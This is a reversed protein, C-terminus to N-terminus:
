CRSRAAATSPEIADGGPVIGRTFEVIERTSRYSRTLRIIETQDPGYLAALPDIDSYASAHSYIAQNLDGLATMRSRPFLRKLYELQFPSYDQAEDVIVHRVSTNTHFGKVTEMLYLYPTADEYLMSGQMLTRETQSAIGEWHAPLEAGASLDQALQPNKFLQLYLGTMDVFALQKVDERLPKLQDKVVIKALMGREKEFDDFTIGEGGKMKRLRQYARHYDDADLLEIAEDVWPAHIEAASFKKLRDLLWKQMLELRNPVRIGKEYSYFHEAMQNVDIVIKGRFTIPNFKMGSAELHQKYGQIMYLFEASSKFRIGSIRSVYDIGASDRITTGDRKSESPERHAGSLAHGGAKEAARNDGLAESVIAGLNGNAQSLSAAESIESGKCSELLIAGESAHACELEAKVAIDGDVGAGGLVYELQTFPDEIDFMSGLRHELYAQYTTQQMNEEGLEPLVTSVYSNFLPNPSFLVMQDAQLTDRHKYLLYAVRQLAASTKGSGAAGQVILMRSHDNRIIRNQEKQITAVISKMQADSSRSLARKLLEDGITVGTDFMLEMVGDRIIFQRKLLMEGAIAGNPTEYAAQGPAYDYYLSSIPARWDYVLYSLGAEDLFSAIGLYIKETIQEGQEVFDIRGFYPSRELRRLKGLTVAAHRHRQERHFLIESQQKLSAHSEIADDVTSFDVTVHDWFNKRIDVVEARVEGVEDELQQIKTRIQSTVDTVRAQEAAWDQDHPVQEEQETKNM